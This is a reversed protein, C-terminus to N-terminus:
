SDLKQQPIVITWSTGSAPSPSRFFSWFSFLGLYWLFTHKHSGTNTPPLLHRSSTQKVTPSACPYREQTEPTTQANGNHCLRKVTQWVVTQTTQCKIWLWLITFPKTRFETGPGVRFCQALVKVNREAEGNKQKERSEIKPGSAPQSKGHM